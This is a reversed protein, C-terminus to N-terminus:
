RDRWGMFLDLRVKKVRTKGNNPHARKCDRAEERTRYIARKQPGSTGIMNADIMPTGSGYHSSLVWWGSRNWWLVAWLYDYNQTNINCETEILM